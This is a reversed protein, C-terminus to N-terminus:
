KKFRKDKKVREETALTALISAKFELNRLAVITPYELQQNEAETIKDCDGVVHAAYKAYKSNVEIQKIRDAILMTMHNAYGVRQKRNFTNWARKTILQNPRCTFIDEVM